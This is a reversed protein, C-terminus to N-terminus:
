KVADSGTHRIEVVGGNDIRCLNSSLWTNVDQYIQLVTMNPSWWGDEYRLFLKRANQNSSVSNVMECLTLPFVGGDFCWAVSTRFLLLKPCKEPYSDLYVTLLLAEEKQDCPLRLVINADSTGLGSLLYEVKPLGDNLTVLEEGIKRVSAPVDESMLGAGWKISWHPAEMFIEYWGEESLGEWKFQSPLYDHEMQEVLVEVWDEPLRTKLGRAEAYEPYRDLMNGMVWRDLKYLDILREDVARSVHRFSLAWPLDPFDPYDCVFDYAEHWIVEDVFCPRKLLLWLCYVGNDPNRLETMDVFPRLQPWERLVFACLQECHKLYGLSLVQSIPVGCQIAVPDADNEPTDEAQDQEGSLREVIGPRRKLLSELAGKGRNSSVIHAIESLCPTRLILAEWNEESFQELPCKQAYEPLKAVLGVWADIRLANLDCEAAFSPVKRILNGWQWGTLKSFDFRSKLEPRKELVDAPELLSFRCEPHNDFRTTERLMKTWGDPSIRSWDPIYSVADPNTSLIEAYEQGNLDGWPCFRLWTGDASLLEVWDAPTMCPNVALAKGVRDIWEGGDLESDRRIALQDLRHMMVRGNVEDDTTLGHRRIVTMARTFSGDEIADLINRGTIKGFDSYWLGELIRLPVGKPLCFAIARVLATIKEGDSLKQIRPLTYKRWMVGPNQPDDDALDVAGFFDRKLDDLVKQVPYEYGDDRAEEILYAVKKLYLARCGLTRIVDGVYPPWEGRDVEGGCLLAVAVDEPLNRLQVTEVNPARLPTIGDKSRASSVIDLGQPLGRPFTKKLANESLLDKPEDLNDLVLLVPGVSKCKRAISDVVEQPELPALLMNTSDVKGDKTRAPVYEPLGFWSRIRTVKPAVLLQLVREWSRVGDLQLFFSGGPYESAYEQAYRLLLQTKGTGGTAWVHPIKGKECVERIRKLEGDRGMFLSDPLPVNSYAYNAQTVERRSDERLRGEKTITVEDGSAHIFRDRVGSYSVSVIERSDKYCDIDDHLTIDPAEGIDGRIRRPLASYKGAIRVLRVPEAPRVFVLVVEGKRGNADTYVAHRWVLLDSAGHKNELEMKEGRHSWTLNTPWLCHKVFERIYVEPGQAMLHRPDNEELPVLQLTGDQIGIILVGGSTNMLAIIEHAYNWYLDKETEGKRVNGQQLCMGAKLELWDTEGAGAYRVLAAVGGKSYLYEALDYGSIKDDAM